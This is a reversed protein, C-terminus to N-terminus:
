ERFAVDFTDEKPAEIGAFNLFARGSLEANIGRFGGSVILRGLVERAGAPQTRAVVDLAATTLYDNDLVEQNQLLQLVKSGAGPGMAILKKVPELSEAIKVAAAPTSALMLEEYVEPRSLQEIASNYMEEDFNEKM